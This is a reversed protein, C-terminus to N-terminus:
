AAASAVADDSIRAIDAWTLDDGTWLIGFARDVDDSFGHRTRFAYRWRQQQADHGLRAVRGVAYTDWAVRHPLPQDERDPPDGFDARRLDGVQFLLRGIVRAAGAESFQRLRKPDELAGGDIELVVPDSSAIRVRGTPMTEDVRVEIAVDGLGAQAALRATLEAITAADFDVM